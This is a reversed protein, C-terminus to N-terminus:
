FIEQKPWRTLSIARAWPLLGRKAAALRPSDTEKKKNVMSMFQLNTTWTALENLQFGTNIKKSNKNLNYGTKEEKLISNRKNGM